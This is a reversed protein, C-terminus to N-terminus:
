LIVYASRPFFLNYVEATERDQITYEVKKQPNTCTYFFLVRFM